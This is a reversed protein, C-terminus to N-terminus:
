SVLVVVQDYPVSARTLHDPVVTQRVFNNVRNLPARRRALTQECDGVLCLDVKDPRLEVTLIDVHERFIHHLLRLLSVLNVDGGIVFLLM